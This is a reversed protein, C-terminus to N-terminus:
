AYVSPQYGTMNSGYGVNGTGRIETGVGTFAEGQATNKDIKYTKLATQYYYNGKTDINLNYSPAALAKTDKLVGATTYKLLTSAADNNTLIILDGFPDILLQKALGNVTPPNECITTGILSTGTFTFKKIHSYYLNSSIVYLTNDISVSLGNCAWNFDGSALLAKTEYNYIKVTSGSVAWFYLDKFISFRPITASDGSILLTYDASTSEAIISAVTISYLDCQDGAGSTAGVIVNLGDRSMEIFTMYQGAAYASYNWLYRKKVIGDKTIMILKAQETYNNGAGDYGCAIYLNDNADKCSIFINAVHNASLTIDATTLGGQPLQTWEGTTTDYFQGCKPM